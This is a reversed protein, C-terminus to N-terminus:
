DGVEAGKIALGTDASRTVGLTKVDAHCPEVAQISMIPVIIVESKSLRVYMNRDTIFLTGRSRVTVREYRITSAPKDDDSDEAHKRKARLERQRLRQRRLERRVQAAEEESDDEDSEILGGDGFLLADEEDEESESEAGARGAGEAADDREDDDDEDASTGRGRRLRSRMWRWAQKSRSNRAIRRGDEGVLVGVPPQPLGMQGAVARTLDQALEEELSLPMSPGGSQRKSDRKRAKRRQQYAKMEAKSPAVLVPRIASVELKIYEETRVLIEDSHLGIRSRLTEWASHMSGMSKHLAKIYRHLLTLSWCPHNPTTTTAPCEGTSSVFPSCM